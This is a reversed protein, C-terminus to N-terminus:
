RGAEGGVLRIRESLRRAAEEVDPASVVASIVAVGAAGAAMVADVSEANVGGIAVVPVSVRATIARLGELGMAPAADAKSSTPFVPGVGLYDAGEREARVAEELSTASVGLIRDSGVLRRALGAPMDDQGVHLGDADVALAVDVRDNVVLAVGAERTLERLHRGVEVMRLTSAEKERLQIVSAGGSIAARAVELSDTLVHLGSAIGVM